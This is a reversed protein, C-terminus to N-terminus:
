AEVLRGIRAAVDAPLALAAAAVNQELLALQPRAKPSLRNAWFSTCGPGLESVPLGTRGAVRRKM